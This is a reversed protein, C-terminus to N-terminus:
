QSVRVADGDVTTQAGEVLDRFDNGLGVIIPHHWARAAAVFPDMPCGGAAVFGDALPLGLAWGSDLMDAALIAQNCGNHKHIGWRRLPGTAQGAVGPLGHRACQAEQDGLLMVAPHREQDAAHEAQRRSVTARIGDLASVNWEGTMMQKIEELEFLFVEDPSQLRGDVMAEKAAALAWRRTGAWIYGLAHLARSQLSHLAHVRQLIQPGQKQVQPDLQDVVKQVTNGVPLKGPRKPHFEVCGQLSRMVMTPDEIWRPHAIEGEGMTRHGYTYLFAALAENAARGPFSDEWAHYDGAKLWAVTAHADQVQESIAIVANAIDSEVLGTLDCLASNILILSQQVDSHMAQVLQSYLLELAHRAGLYAMMGEQGVREIEEMVQLVDAQTWRMEQTKIHWTQAKQTIANMQQAFGDLAEDLKRQARGTKFSGLFGPKEWKALPFPQGNVRLRLPEIGAREAELRATISLNLYARGQHRRLLRSRPAPDFGLRDYYQFWARSVIESLVSFSFPTLAGAAVPQLSTQSWITVDGGPVNGPVTLDFM